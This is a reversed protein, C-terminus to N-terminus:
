MMRRWSEGRLKAKWRVYMLPGEGGRMAEPESVSGYPPDESWSIVNTPLATTSLTEACSVLCPAHLSFANTGFTENHRILITEEGLFNEPEGVGQYKNM